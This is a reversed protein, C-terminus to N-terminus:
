LVTAGYNAILVAGFYNDTLVVPYTQDTINLVYGRPSVSKNRRVFMRRASVKLARESGCLGYAHQLSEKARRKM